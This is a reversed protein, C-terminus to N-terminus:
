CNDKVHDLGGKEIHGNKATFQASKLVQIAHIPPGILRGVGSVGRLGM